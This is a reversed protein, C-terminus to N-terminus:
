EGILSGNTLRRIYQKKYIIQNEVRPSDNLDLTSYNDGTPSGLQVKIQFQSGTLNLSGNVYLRMDDDILKGQELLVSDRTGTKRDLPLVIGSTWLTTGSQTLTVEDDWVSGITQSYYKLAIQQGTKGILNTFGISLTDKITM